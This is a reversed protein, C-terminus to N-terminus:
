SGSGGCASPFPMYDAVLDNLAKQIEPTVAGIIDNKLAPVLADAIWSVPSYSPSVKCSLDGLKLKLQNLGTYSLNAVSGSSCSGACVQIQSTGSPDSGTCQASGSYVTETWTKIYPIECKVKVKIESIDATLKQGDVLFAAGSGTGAYSCAYAGGSASSSYPCVQTGSNATLSSMALDKFQMYALGNISSVSVQAYEEKCKAAQVGCIEDGGYSCKLSIKEDVLVNKLPDLGTNVAVSPWAKNLVPTLSSLLGNVVTIGDTTSCVAATETQTQSPPPATVHSGDCGAAVLLPSWVLARLMRPTSLTSLTRFMRIKM